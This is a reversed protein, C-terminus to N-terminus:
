LLVGAGLMLSFENNTGRGTNMEYGIKQYVFANKTVIEDVRFLLSHSNTYYGSFPRGKIWNKADIGFMGQGNAVDYPKDNNLNRLYIRELFEVTFVLFKEKTVDNFKNFSVGVAVEYLGWYNALRNANDFYYFDYGTVRSYYSVTRDFTYNYSFEYFGSDLTKGKSNKTDQPMFRPYLAVKLTSKEERKGFVIGIKFDNEVYNKKAPGASNVFAFNDGYHTGMMGAGIAYKDLFYAAQLTETYNVLNPSAAGLHPNGTKFEIEWDKTPTFDVYLMEPVDVLLGDDTKLKFKGSDYYYGIQTTFDLSAYLLRPAKKKDLEEEYQKEDAKKKELAKRKNEEDEKQKALLMEQQRQLKMKYADPLWQMVEKNNPDIKLVHEGTAVAKEFDGTQYYLSGLREFSPVQAPNRKIAEEYYPLANKLEGKLELAQGMNHYARASSNNYIDIAKGFEKIAEDYAKKDSLQVGKKTHDVPDQAHLTVTMMAMIGIVLTQRICRRMKM